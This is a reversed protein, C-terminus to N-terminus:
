EPSWPPRWIMGLLPRLGGYVILGGADAVLDLIDASRYPLFSQALEIVAGYLLLLPVQWRWYVAPASPMSYDTLFGLLLFGVAHLLKDGGGPMAAASAESLAAATGAAFALVLAPRFLLLRLLREARANLWIRM